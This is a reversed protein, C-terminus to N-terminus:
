NLVDLFSEDLLELMLEFFGKTSLRLTFHKKDVVVQEVLQRMLAMQNAPFLEDIAAEVQNLREAM